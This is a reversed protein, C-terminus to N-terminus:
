WRMEGGQLKWMIVACVLVCLGNNTVCSLPLGTFLGVKQRGREMREDGVM